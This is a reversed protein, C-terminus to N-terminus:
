SYLVLTLGLGCKIVKCSHSNILAPEFEQAAEVQEKFVTLHQEVIAAKDTAGPESPASFRTYILFFYKQFKTFKFNFFSNLDTDPNRESTNSTILTKM